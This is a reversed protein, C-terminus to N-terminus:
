LVFGVAIDIMGSQTGGSVARKRRRWEKKKAFSSLRV